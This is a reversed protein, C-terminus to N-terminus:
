HVPVPKTLTRPAAPPVFRRALGQACLASVDLSSRAAWTRLLETLLRSEGEPSVLGALRAQGCAGLALSPSIAAMRERDGSAGRWLALLREPTRDDFALAQRLSRGQLSPPRHKALLTAFAPVTAVLEEIIMRRDPAAAALPYLSTWVSALRGWQAHPYLTRGIACSLIVRLWPTPHPDETDIRFVFWRPLSVVGILGLTSAVGVRGISWFDAIVESIWRRWLTWARRQAAPAVAERAKLEASLSAVLGLLAAGQHGVEHMLSSAIGHGVMRERPVRILAVPNPRNGPLRTRARRIAGGPGRDLYCLLPPDEFPRGAVRLGDSAAVDLGSLLVGDSESRQTLADSFLDFNGLALNFRVRLIAFRRQMEAPDAAAAGRLWSRFAEIERRLETGERQLFRDIAAQAVPSPMAAMVMTESVAFAPVRRLRDQIARAEQDLMWAAAAPPM